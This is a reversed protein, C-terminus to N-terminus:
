AGACARSCDILLRGPLQHAKWGKEEVGTNSNASSTTVGEDGCGPVNVCQVDNNYTM